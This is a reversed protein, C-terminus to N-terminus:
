VWFEIEAVREPLRRPDRGGELTTRIQEIFVHILDAPTHTFAEGYRRIVAMQHGLIEVDQDILRQALRRVVPRALRGWMGYDFTLDTYVLTEEASVPVAQSTIVFRRRPGFGYEVCTVNPMHFRDAHEIERGAPNLFWSFIGLNARENRYTVTVTGDRREVRAQLPEDRQSRFIWPHVFATHPIDVFNEACNTVTSEFRNVLRVHRWGPAALHPIPFPAFEDAREDSLRVYVYGDQEAVAYRRAVRCGIRGPDGHLSPVEVVRGAGDYVWGHYLCRLRGEAVRGRSLPASRHLCRDQLAVARGAAARFLALREGALQRGLVVGPALDRADAAVYWFMRLDLRSGRSAAEAEREAVSSAAPRTDVPRATECALLAARAAGSM